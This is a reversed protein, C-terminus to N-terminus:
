AIRTVLVRNGSGPVFLEGAASLKAIYDGDGNTAAASADVGAADAAGGIWTLQGFTGYEQLLLMVPMDTLSTVHEAVDIGWGVADVYRGNAIVASTVVAYSGVPPPDGLDGHLPTALSDEPPGTVHAEGEALKAAYETDDGLPGAKEVLDAIGEVRATFALSGIPMGFGASWLGIETGMTDSAMARMEMAWGMATPSGTTMLQRTFLQM